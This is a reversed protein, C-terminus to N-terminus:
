PKSLIVKTHLQNKSSTWRLFYLGEPYSSLDLMIQKKRGQLKRTLLTQGNSSILRLTGTSSLADEVFCQLIASTPNPFTILRAEPIGTDLVKVADTITHTTNVVHQVPTYGLHLNASLEFQQGIELDTIPNVALQFYGTGGLTQINSLWCQFKGNPEVEFTLPHSSMVEEISVWDLGGSMQGSFRIFDSDLSDPISFYFTYRVPFQTLLSDKPYYTGPQAELSALANVPNNFATATSFNNGPTPDSPAVATWINITTATANFNLELVKNKRRDPQISSTNWIITDADWELDDPLAGPFDPTPDIFLKIPKEFATSGMNRAQLHVKSLGGIYPPHQVALGVAADEINEQTTYAFTYVSDTGPVVLHYEPDFAALPHLSYPQLQEPEESKSYLKFKGDSESKGVATGESLRLTIGPLTQEGEDQIGNGNLDSFIVGSIAGLGQIEELPRRWLGNGHTNIYLYDETVTLDSQLTKFPLGEDVSTWKWPHEDDKQFLGWSSMLFYQDAIDALFLNVPEIYSSDPSLPHPIPHFDYDPAVARQWYNQEGEIDPHVITLPCYLTDHICYFRISTIGASPPLDLAGHNLVQWNLGFDNSVIFHFSSSLFDHRMGYITSDGFAFFQSHYGTQAEAIDTLNDWQQTITDLRHLPAAQRDSYLFLHENWTKFQDASSNGIPQSIVWPQDLAPTKAIVSPQGIGMRILSYLYGNHSHIDKFGEFYQQNYLEVPYANWDSQFPGFTQIFDLGTGIIQGFHNSIGNFVGTQIGQHATNWPSSLDSANLIEHRGLAFLRNNFPLPRHLPMFGSVVEWDDLGFDAKYYISDGPVYLDGDIRYVGNGQQIDPQEIWSQSLGPLVHLATTYFNKQLVWIFDNEKWIHTVPLNSLPAEIFLTTDPTILALKGVTGVLIQDQYKLTSSPHEFGEPLQDATWSQGLDLSKFLTGEDGLMYLSNDHIWAERYWIEQDPWKIDIITDNQILLYQTFSESITDTLFAETLLSGSIPDYDMKLIISHKLREDPTYQIWSTDTRQYIGDSTSVLLREGALIMGNTHVKHYHSPVQEWQAFLNKPFILFVLPYFVFLLFNLSPTKM